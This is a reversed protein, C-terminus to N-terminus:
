HKQALAELREFVRRAVRDCRTAHFQFCHEATAGIAANLSKRLAAHARHLRVKVNEPTLNLCEATDQTNMGEVDRLMFVLRHEESLTLIAKELLGAMERHYTQEEPTREASTATQM